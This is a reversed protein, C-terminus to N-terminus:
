EKGGVEFEGHSKGRAHDPCDDADSVRIWGSGISIGYLRGLDRRWEWPCTCRGRGPNTM